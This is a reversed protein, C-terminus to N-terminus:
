PAILSVQAQRFILMITVKHSCTRLYLIQGSLFGPSGSMIYVARSGDNRDSGSSRGVISCNSLSKLPNRSSSNVLGASGPLVSVLTYHYLNMIITSQHLHCKITEILTGAWM